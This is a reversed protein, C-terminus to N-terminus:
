EVAPLDLEDPVSELRYRKRQAAAVARRGLLPSFQQPMARDQLDKGTRGFECFARAAASPAWSRAQTGCQVIRDSKKVTDVASLLEDMNM